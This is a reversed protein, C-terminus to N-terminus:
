RIPAPIDVPLSKSLLGITWASAAAAGTALQWRRRILLPLQLEALAFAQGAGLLV